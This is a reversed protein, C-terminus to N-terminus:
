KAFEMTNFGVHTLLALPYGGLGERLWHGELVLVLELVAGTANVPILVNGDSRLTRTVAEALGCLSVTLAWSKLSPCLLLAQPHPPAPLRPPPPCTGLLERDRRARTVPARPLREFQSGVIALAPRDFLKALAAGELHRDRSHNFDSAYIIDEGGVSIGWM